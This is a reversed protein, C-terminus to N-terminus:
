KSDKFKMAMLIQHFQVDEDEDMSLLMLMNKEKMSDVRDILNLIEKNVINSGVIRKLADLLSKCKTVSFARGVDKMGGADGIRELEAKKRLEAIRPQYKLGSEKAWLTDSVRHRTAVEDLVEFVKMNLIGNKM